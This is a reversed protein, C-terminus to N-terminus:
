RKFSNTDWREQTHLKDHETKFMIQLNDINNNFGNGDIHHVIEFPELFRKLHKEMILRHEFVYGKSDSYPHYPSKIAIYKNDTGYRIKGRYRPHNIGRITASRWLYQCKKSCFTKKNSFYKIFIKGCIPCVSEEKHGNGWRNLIYCKHSCYRPIRKINKDVFEKGCQVCKYTKCSSCIIQKGGNPVFEKGCKVCFKQKYM